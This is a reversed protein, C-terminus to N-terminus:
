RELLTVTIGDGGTITVVGQCYKSISTLRLVVIDGAGISDLTYGGSVDVDGVGSVAVTTGGDGDINPTLAGATGNNLIMLQDKAAKFLFTDSAGLTTETVPTTERINVDTIAIVAMIYGM